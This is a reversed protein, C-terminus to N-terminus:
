FFIRGIVRSFSNGTWPAAEHGTERVERAQHSVFLPPFVLPSLLQLLRGAGRGGGPFSFSSVLGSMRLLRELSGSCILRLKKRQSEREM